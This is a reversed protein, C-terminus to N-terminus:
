RLTRNWGEITAQEIPTGAFWGHRVLAIGGATVVAREDGDAMMGPRGRVLRFAIRDPGSELTECVSGIKDRGVHAQVLPAPLREPLNLSLWSDAQHWQARAEWLFALLAGIARTGLPQPMALDDRSLGIAPVGWFTAERAIAMTGSYAIDEAVNIKDNLGALVLDPKSEGTFLLTMAAIVCDAPSGSCAYEREGTRTLTLVLDFSLQHSAATWKREPAVVWVEPALIRAAAALTQLGTAQIGDDNCVLIRM